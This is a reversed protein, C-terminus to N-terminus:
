RGGGQEERSTEGPEGSETTLAGGREEDPLETPAGGPRAGSPKDKPAAASPACAVATQPATWGRGAEEPAPSEVRPPREPSM